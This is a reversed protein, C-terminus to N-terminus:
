FNTVAATVLSCFFQNVSCVIYSAVRPFMNDAAECVCFFFSPFVWVDLVM